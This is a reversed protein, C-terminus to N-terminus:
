VNKLGNKFAIIRLIFMKIVLLYSTLIKFELFNDEVLYNITFLTKMQFIFITDSCSM